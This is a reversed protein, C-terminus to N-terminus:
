SRNIRELATRINLIVEKQEETRLLDELKNAASKAEKEYAGILLAANARVRWDKDEFARLLEPLVKPHDAGLHSLAIYAASRVRWSEDNRAADLFFRIASAGIPDSKRVAMVRADEGGIKYRVEYYGLRFGSSIAMMTGFLTAAVLAILIAISFRARRKSTAEIESKIDHRTKRRRSAM